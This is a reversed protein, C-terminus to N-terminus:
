NEERVMNKLIVENDALKYEKGDKVLIMDGDANFGMSYGSIADFVDNNNNMKNNKRINNMKVKDTM